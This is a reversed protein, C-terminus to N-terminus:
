GVVSVKVVHSRSLFIETGFDSLGDVDVSCCKRVHVSLEIRQAAEAIMDKHLQREVPCVLAVEHDRRTRNGGGPLLNVGRAAVHEAYLIALDERKVAVHGHRNKQLLEPNEHIKLRGESM